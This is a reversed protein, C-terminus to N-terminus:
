EAAREVVTMVRARLPHTGGRECAVRQVIAVCKGYAGFAEAIRLPADAASRLPQAFPRERILDALRPVHEELQLCPAIVVERRRLSQRDCARDHHISRAPPRPE